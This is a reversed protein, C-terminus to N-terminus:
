GPQQLRQMVRQTIDLARDFTVIGLGQASLDIVMAYNGEARIGEIIATLREQMPSLLEEERAGLQQNLEQNRRQLAQGRTELDKRRAERNSPTLMPEQRQFDAAASDFQAQLRGLETRSNAVEAAFTSEAQAYGPMGSLLLRANVFAIRGPAAAPQQALAPGAGGALLGLALVALPRRVSLM